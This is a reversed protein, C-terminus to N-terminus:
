LSVNSTIHVSCFICRCFEPLWRFRSSYIRYHSMYFGLSYLGFLSNGRKWGQIIGRAASMKLSQPTGPLFSRLDMNGSSAIPDAEVAEEDLLHSEDDSDNFEVEDGDDILAALLEPYARAVDKGRTNLLHLATQLITSVCNIAVRSCFTAVSLGQKSEADQVKDRLRRYLRKGEQLYM